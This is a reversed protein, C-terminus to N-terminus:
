PEILMADGYSFFRYGTRVAHRYAELIFERGAFASVLMLLTSRPLHFNTVMADVVRFEFGPTIFLRTDGDYPRLEGGRAATELARVVTTGVAVIRGGHARVSGITEVLEGSVVLREAHMRHESISESRVPQFTGAGVHLTLRATSIGRSVLESFVADDFHLGATPAAVAGDVAAYVTQYRDQDIAEDAREIYPPLPIHGARALWAHVEGVGTFDLEFLEDRRATVVATVGDDFVLETGVRPTRNARLHALARARGTARELLMEVRAGSRKHGFVRAPVVRTENLVLLDGPRLLGPLDRFARDRIERKSHRLHLLRSASREAAPHQAILAEPLEFDFDSLQM